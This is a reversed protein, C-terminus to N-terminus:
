IIFPDYEVRRYRSRSTGRVGEFPVEWRQRKRPSVLKTDRFVLIELRIGIESSVPNKISLRSTWIWKITSIVQTTREQAMAPQIGKELYGLM